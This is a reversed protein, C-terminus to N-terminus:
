ADLMVKVQDPQTAQRFAEAAEDLPYHASVLEGMRLRPLLHAAQRFDRITCDISGHFHLQQYHLGILDLTAKSGYVYGSFFLVSGGRRVLKMAQESAEISAVAIVCLDPQVGAKELAEELNEKSVDVVRDAGLKRALEMRAPFMGSVTVDYAGLFRVLQLFTLGVPGDGVILVSDGQRFETQRLGNSVCALIEVLAAADPDVGDPIRVVGGARVMQGPIVVQEAFAGPLHVGFLPGDECLNDLGRSCYYCQMCPVLPAATVRDGVAFGTVEPGAEVVEGIFEHGLVVPLTYRPSPGQNLMRVDSGCVGCTQVKVRLAGADMPPLEMPEVRMDQKGYLLAARVKM